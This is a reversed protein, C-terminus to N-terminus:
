RLPPLDCLRITERLRAATRPRMVAPSLSEEIGWVLGFAARPGEGDLLARGLTALSCTDYLADTWFSM